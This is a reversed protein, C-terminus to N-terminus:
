TSYYTIYARIDFGSNIYTTNLNGFGTSASAQGYFYATDGGAVPVITLTTLNSNASTFYSPHGFGALGTSPNVRVSDFPLNDLIIDGGLGSASNIRIRVFITVLRGIKTYGGEQHYYSTPTSGDTGKIEPTFIGEEYDDLLNSDVSTGDGYNHFNIGHGSPLKIGNSDLRMRETADTLFRLYNNQHNYQVLGMYEDAGSTGDSFAVTGESSTGSRITIGTHGSTAITLDDYESFGETDTGILLRGSVKAGSSNIKLREANATSFALTNDAPRYIAAATSPTSISGSFDIYASNMNLNTGGISVNGTTAINQSGFDPTIKTGAIAASANIDANLIEDDKIGKSNIQTLTM